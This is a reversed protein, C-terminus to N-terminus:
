ASLIAKVVQRLADATANDDTLTQVLAAEAAEM